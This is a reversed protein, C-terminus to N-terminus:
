LPFDMKVAIDKPVFTITKILTWLVENIHITNSRLIRVSLAHQPM